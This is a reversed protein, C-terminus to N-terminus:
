GARQQPDLCSREVRLEADVAVTAIFQNSAVAILVSPIPPATGKIM